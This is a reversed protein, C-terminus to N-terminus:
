NNNLIRKKWKDYVGENELEKKKKQRLYRKRKEIRFRDKNKEYYDAQKKSDWSGM